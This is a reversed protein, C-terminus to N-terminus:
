TLILGIREEAKGTTLRGRYICGVHILVEDGRERERMMMAKLYKPKDSVIVNIRTLAVAPLSNGVILGPKLKAALSSFPPAKTSHQFARM